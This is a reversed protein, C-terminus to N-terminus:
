EYKSLVDSPWKANRNRRLYGILRNCVVLLPKYLAGNKLCPFFITFLNQSYNNLSKIEKWLKNVRDFTYNSMVSMCLMDLSCKDVMPLAVFTYVNGPYCFWSPLHSCQFPLTRGTYTYPNQKKTYLNYVEIDDNFVSWTTCRCLKKLRVLQDNIKERM